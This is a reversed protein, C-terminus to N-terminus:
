SFTCFAGGAIRVAPYSRLRDLVASGIAGCGILALELPKINRNGQASVTSDERGADHLAVVPM